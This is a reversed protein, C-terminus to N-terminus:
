LKRWFLFFDMRRVTCKSQIFCFLDQKIERCNVFISLFHKTEQAGEKESSKWTKGLKKQCWLKM